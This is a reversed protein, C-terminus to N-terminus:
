PSPQADADRQAQREAGAVASRAAHVDRELGPLPTTSPKIVAPTGCGALAVVAGVSAALVAARRGPRCLTIVTAEDARPRGAKAADVRTRRM